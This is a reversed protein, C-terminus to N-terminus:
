SQKNVKAENVDVNIEVVDQMLQEKNLHDIDGYKVVIVSGTERIEILTVSGNFCRDIGLVVDEQREANRSEVLETVLKNLFAGHSVVLIHYPTSKSDSSAIHAVLSDWWAMIRQEFDAYPEVITDVTAASAPTM